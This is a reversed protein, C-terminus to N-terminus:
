NKVIKNSNGDRYFTNSVENEGLLVCADTIAAVVGHAVSQRGRVLSEEDVRSRSRLLVCLFLFVCVCEPTTSASVTGAPTHAEPTSANLKM